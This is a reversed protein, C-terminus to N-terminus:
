KKCARVQQIYSSEVTSTLLTAMAATTVAMDAMDAMDAMAVALDQVSVM